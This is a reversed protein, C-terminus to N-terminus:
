PGTVAIQISHRVIIHPDGSSSFAPNGGEDLVRFFKVPTVKIRVRTGDALAYENWEERVTEFPVERVSLDQEGVRITPMPACKIM